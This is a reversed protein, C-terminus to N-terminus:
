IWGSRQSPNSITREHLVSCEYAVLTTGAADRLASTNRGASHAWFLGDFRWGMEKEDQSATM